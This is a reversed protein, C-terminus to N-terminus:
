EWIIMEALSMALTLIVVAAADLLLIVLVKVFPKRIRDIKMPSWINLYNCSFFVITLACLIFFAREIWLHAPTQATQVTLTLGLTFILLYGLLAIVTHTPDGSRFGPITYKSRRHARDPATYREPELDRLLEDISAYRDKPDMMTCRQVVRGLRGEAIHKKPSEGTLLENLLVGVSYVDVQVGSAGFGYQEPAAYGVTGILATDEQKDSACVKAANMDILKVEGDSTLIINSPKVDRHIISPSARHMERLITCLQRIISLTQEESFCSAGSLLTKLTEGSIYEEIVILKGDDEVAEVIAPTGPVHHEKLYRFVSPNFVTLTKKVYINKSRRHQVLFVGHEENIAAVQDYCALACEDSVTM